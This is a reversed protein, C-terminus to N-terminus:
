DVVYLLKNKNEIFYLPDWFFNLGSYNTKNSVFLEVHEGEVNEVICVFGENTKKTNTIATLKYNCGCECEYFVDGKKVNEIKVFIMMSEDNIGTKKPNILDAKKNM